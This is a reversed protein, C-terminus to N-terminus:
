QAARAVSGRTQWVSTQPALPVQGTVANILAYGVDAVCFLRTEGSLRLPPTQCFCACLTYSTCHRSAEKPENGTEQKQNRDVNISLNRNLRQVHRFEVGAKM